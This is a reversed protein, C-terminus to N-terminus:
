QEKTILESKLNAIFQMLGTPNAVASECNLRVQLDINNRLEQVDKPLSKNGFWKFM